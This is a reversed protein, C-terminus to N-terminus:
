GVVSAILRDGVERRARGDGIRHVIVGDDRRLWGEYTGTVRDGDRMEITIRSGIIPRYVPRDNRM